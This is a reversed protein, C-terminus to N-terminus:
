SASGNPKPLQNPKHNNKRKKKKLLGCTIFKLQFCGQFLKYLEHEKQVKQTFLCHMVQIGLKEIINFEM